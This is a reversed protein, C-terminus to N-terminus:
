PDGPLTREPVQVGLRRAADYLHLAQTVPILLNNQRRYAVPDGPPHPFGDLWDFAADPVSRCTHNTWYVHARSYDLSAVLDYYTKQDYSAEQAHDDVQRTSQHYLKDWDSYRPEVCRLQLEALRVMADAACAERLEPRPEGRWRPWQRFSTKTPDTEFPRCEPNDLALAVARRTGLPDDLISRWDDTLYFRNLVAECPPDLAHWSAPHPPWPCHSRVAEAVREYTAPDRWDLDSERDSDADSNEVPPAHAAPQPATPPSALAAVTTEAEPTAAPPWLLWTVAGLASLVSASTVLLWWRSPLRLRPM